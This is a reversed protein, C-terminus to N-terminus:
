RFTEIRADALVSQLSPIDQRKTFVFKAAYIISEALDPDIRHLNLVEIAEDFMGAMRYHYAADTYRRARLFANAASAHDPLIAYCEAANLFLLRLSESDETTNREQVLRGFTQAVDLFATLRNPHKEALRMAEQRDHYAQAVDAWWKMEAKKFCFSAELFLRNSFYEQAQIPWEDIGGDWATYM